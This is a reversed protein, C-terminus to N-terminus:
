LLLAIGKNLLCSITACNWNTLRYVVSYEGVYVPEPTWGAEQVIPVPSREGPPYLAAPAHRQGSVGM